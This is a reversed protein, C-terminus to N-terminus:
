TLGGGNNQVNGTSNTSHLSGTRERSVINANRALQGSENSGGTLRNKAMTERIIYRTSHTRHWTRSVERERGGECM